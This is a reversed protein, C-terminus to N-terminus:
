SELLLESTGDELLIVGSSDELLLSNGVAVLASAGSGVLGSRAYGSSQGLVAKAGSGVLGAVGRGTQDGGAPPTPATGIAALRQWRPM